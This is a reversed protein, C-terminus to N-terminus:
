EVMEAASATEYWNCTRADWKEGESTLREEIGRNEKSFIRLCRYEGHPTQYRELWPCQKDEQGLHCVSKAEAPSLYLVTDRIGVWKKMM